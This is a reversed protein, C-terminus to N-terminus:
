NMMIQMSSSKCFSKCVAIQEIVCILPIIIVSSGGMKLIDFFGMYPYSKIEGHVSENFAPIFFQPLQPLPIGNVEVGESFVFMAKHFTMNIIM